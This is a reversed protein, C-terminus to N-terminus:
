QEGENQKRGAIALDQWVRLAAAAQSPDQLLSTLRDNARSWRDRIRPSRTLQNNLYDQAKSPMKTDIMSALKAIQSPSVAPALEILELAIKGAKNVSKVIPLEAPSLSFLDEALGPHPLFSGFGQKKGEGLGKILFEELNEVPKALVFVSGPTLVRQARLRNHKPDAKKGKGHRNWGFLVQAGAYVGRFRSGNMSPSEAIPLSLSSLLQEEATGFKIVSDPVEVPSQLIFVRRNLEGEITWNFFSEITPIERINLIGSGRVSRGRGFSIVQAHLTELLLDGSSEPCSIIGKFVLPAISTVQYLNREPEFGDGNHVGHASWIRPIQGSRWLKVTDPSRLLLGDSGKLPSGKAVDRWDYPAITPDRFDHRGKKEDKLKSLKHSCSVRVPFVNAVEEECIGAPQLPWCRFLPSEFCDSALETSYSDMRSLIAGQVASAPIVFGSKTVNSAVSTPSEPCCIASHAVFTLEFWRAKTSVAAMPRSKTTTVESPSSRLALDLQRLLQGPLRSENEIDICCAGAGRSRSAGISSISVLALRIALDQWSDKIANVVVYGRFKSGVRISESSRLSQKQITGHKNLATRTVYSRKQYTDTVAPELVLDSIAVMSQTGDDGNNGISEGPAGMIGSLFDVMPYSRIKAFDLLWQRLLGKLHSAPVIARGHFDRPILNNITETGIGTGPIADSCLTLHIGITQSSM